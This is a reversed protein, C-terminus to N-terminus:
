FFFRINEYIIALCMPASPSISALCNHFHNHWLRIILSFFISYYSSTFIHFLVFFPVPISLFHHHPQLNIGDTLTLSHRLSANSQKNATHLGCFSYQWSMSFSLKLVVVVGIKSGMSERWCAIKIKIKIFFITFQM